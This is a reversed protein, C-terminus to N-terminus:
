LKTPIKKFCIGNHYINNKTYVTNHRLIDTCKPKLVFMKSSFSFEDDVSPKEMFTIRIKFENHLGCALLLENIEKFKYEIGGIYYTLKVNIKRSSAFHINSIIDCNKELFYDHYYNGDSDIHLVSINFLLLKDTHNYTVADTDNEILFKIGDASNNVTKSHLIMIGNIFDYYNIVNNKKDM